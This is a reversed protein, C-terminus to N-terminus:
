IAPPGPRSPECPMNTKPMCASSSSPCVPWEGKILKILEVGSRGPMSMDLILVHPKAERVLGLVENGHGAEGVVSLGEADGIIQKLGARVVAHDDALFVRIM